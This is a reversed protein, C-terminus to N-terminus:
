SFYYDKKLNIESSFNVKLFVSGKNVFIVASIIRFTYNYIESLSTLENTLESDAVLSISLRLNV